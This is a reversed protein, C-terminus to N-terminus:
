SRKVRKKAKGEENLKDLTKFVESVRTFKNPTKKKRDILEKRAKQEKIM